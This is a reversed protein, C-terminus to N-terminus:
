MEAVDGWQEAYLEPPLNYIRLTNDASNTVLCTGDPAWKCGKLYNEPTRSYEDWSGTLLRPAEVFDYAPFYYEGGDTWAGSEEVGEEEEKENDPKEESDVATDRFSSEEEEERSLGHVALDAEEQAGNLRPVKSTPGSTEGVEGGNGTLLLLDPTVPDEVPFEAADM